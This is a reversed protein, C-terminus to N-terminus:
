IHQPGGPMAWIESRRASLDGEELDLLHLWHALFAAHAPSLPGIQGEFAEGMGASEATGQEVAQM